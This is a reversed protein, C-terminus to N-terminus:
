KGDFTLTGADLPDIGFLLRATETRGSGLLGALGTVEGPSAGITVPGVANARALNEARVLDTATSTTAVPAAHEDATVTRGLMKGVLELRPLEAAAYDGVLKGNRLVTIRDSVAYVQDLFHTVFVIGMGEDRL